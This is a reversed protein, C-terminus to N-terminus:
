LRWSLLKDTLFLTTVERMSPPKGPIRCWVKVTNFNKASSFYAAIQCVLIETTSDLSGKAALLAGPYDAVEFLVTDKSCQAEIFENETKDRGVIVKLKQNIRFHRGVRLLLISALDYSTPDFKLLDKLRSCFNSDTLCCGGAPQPLENLNFGLQEALILQQKRSRGSIDYLAAREIWSNQEPLTAALLKASLPRVLLNDTLKVALPLTDKRQSMARQGLVEGSVLFDFGERQMIKKAQMIMFLKCDLCPNFNAGYGYRPATLVSKFEEVVEVLHLKIGLLKALKRAQFSGSENAKLQWDHDGVYGTFFNIGEVEIGQSMIVKTALLSDLGGSVLSLARIKKRAM